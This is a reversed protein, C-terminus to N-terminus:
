RRRVIGAMGILGAGLALLSSPEPVVKQAVLDVQYGTDWDWFSRPAKPLVFSELWYQDSTESQFVKEGDPSFIRLTWWLGQGNILSISVTMQDEAYGTSWIFGVYQNRLSTRPSPLTVDQYPIGEPDFGRRFAVWSGEKYSALDFPRLLGNEPTPYGVHASARCGGDDIVLTLGDPGGGANASAITLISFCFILFLTKM